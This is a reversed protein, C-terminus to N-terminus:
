SGLENACGRDRLEKKYQKWSQIYVPKHGLNPHWFPTFTHAKGGMVVHHMLQGCKKCSVSAFEPPTDVLEEQVHGDPCEFDHLRYM